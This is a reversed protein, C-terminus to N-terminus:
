TYLLSDPKLIDFAAKPNENSENFVEIEEIKPPPSVFDMYKPTFILVVSILLFAVLTNRDM